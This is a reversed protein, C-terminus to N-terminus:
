TASVTFTSETFEYELGTRDLFSFDVNKSERASLSLRTITEAWSILGLHLFAASDLFLSPPLSPSCIRQLSGLYKRITRQLSANFCNWTTDPCKKRAANCELKTRGLSNTLKKAEKMNKNRSLGALTFETTQLLSEQNIYHGVLESIEVAEWGRRGAGGWRMGRQYIQNNKQSCSDWGWQFVPGGWSFWALHNTLQNILYKQTQCQTQLLLPQLLIYVNRQWLFICDM